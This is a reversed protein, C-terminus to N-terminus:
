LNTLYNVINENSSLGLKKRLRQRGKKIAEPTVNKLNAMDKTSLNLMILGCLDKENQSLDPFRKLLKQYFEMNVKEIDSHIVELNKDASLYNVFEMNLERLYDDVEDSSKGKLGKIKKQVESIFRQKYSLSQVLNNLDAKRNKVESQLLNSKLEHLKKRRKQRGFSYVLGGILILTLIVFLLTFVRSELRKAEKEKITLELESDLLQVQQEAFLLENEIIKYKNQALEDILAQNPENIKALSDSLEVSQLLYEYSRKHHGLKSQVNAMIKYSRLLSTPNISERRFLLLLTEEAKKYNGLFYHCEAIGNMANNYSDSIRQETLQADIKMCDLAREYQGDLFYIHGMNGTALGIIDKYREDSVEANMVKQYYVEASDISGKMFYTYGINNYIKLLYYNNGQDSNLCYQVVRQYEYIASDYLQNESYFKSLFDIPKDSDNITTQLRNYVRAYFLGQEYAGIQSCSHALSHFIKASDLIGITQNQSLTQLGVRISEIRNGQKYLEVCQLTGPAYEWDDDQAFSIVNVFLALVLISKM